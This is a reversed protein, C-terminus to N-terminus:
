LDLETMSCEALTLSQLRKINSGITKKQAKTNQEVDFKIAILGYLNKKTHIKSSKFYSLSLLTPQRNTVQYAKTKTMPQTYSAGYLVPIQFAKIKAISVLNM